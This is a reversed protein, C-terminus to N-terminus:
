KPRPSYLRKPHPNHGFKLDKKLAKNVAEELTIENLKHKQWSYKFGMENIMQNAKESLMEQNNSIKESPSIILSSLIDGLFYRAQPSKVDRLYERAEDVFFPHNKNKLGREHELTEGLKLITDSFKPNEGAAVKWYVTRTKKSFHDHGPEYFKKEGYLTKYLYSVEKVAKPLSNNAEPNPQRKIETIGM